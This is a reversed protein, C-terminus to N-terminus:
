AMQFYTRSYQSSGNAATVTHIMKNPSYLPFHKREFRVSYLWNFRGRNNIVDLSIASLLVGFGLTGEPVFITWEVTAAENRRSLIPETRWLFLLCIATCTTRSLSVTCYNDLRVSIDCIALDRQTPEKKLSSNREGSLDWFISSTLLGRTRLIARLTPEIPFSFLAASIKNPLVNQVKTFLQFKAAM